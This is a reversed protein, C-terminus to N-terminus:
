GIYAVGAVDFYVFLIHYSKPNFYYIHRCALCGVGGSGIEWCGCIEMIAIKGFLWRKKLHTGFWLDLGHVFESFISVYM